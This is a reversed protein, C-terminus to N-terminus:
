RAKDALSAPNSVGSLYYNLTARRSCAFRVGAKACNRVFAHDDSFDGTMERWTFRTVWKHADHIRRRVLMESTDVTYVPSGDSAIVADKQINSGQVRIGVDVLASYIHHSLSECDLALRARPTWPYKPELFPSGDAYWLYRWSYAIGLAEDGDLLAALSSLHDPEFTNDDDLYGIYNGRCQAVGCNRLYGIRSASYFPQFEEEHTSTSIEIVRVSGDFRVVERELDSELRKDDVVIVHEVIGPYDQQAVSAACRLLSERRDKTVTVISIPTPEVM